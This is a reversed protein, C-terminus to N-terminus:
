RRDQMFFQICESGNTHSKNECNLTLTLAENPRSAICYKLRTSKEEQSDRERKEDTPKEKLQMFKNFNQKQLCPTTESKNQNKELM